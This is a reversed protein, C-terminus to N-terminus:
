KNKNFLGMMVDVTRNVSENREQNEVEAIKQESIDPFLSSVENLDGDINLRKKFDILNDQINMEKRLYPESSAVVCEEYLQKYHYKQEKLKKIEEKKQENEEKYKQIEQTEEKLKQYENYLTDYYSQLLILEQKFRISDNGYAEYLQGINPLYVSDKETINFSRAIPLNLEEIYDSIRRKWTNRGIGTEKELLLFSLKIGNHKYKIQLAKEKLEEDSVTQPRGKTGDKSM